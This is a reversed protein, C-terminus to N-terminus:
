PLTQDGPAKEEKFLSQHTGRSNTFNLGVQSKRCLSNLLISNQLTAIIESNQFTKLFMLKALCKCIAFVSIQLTYSLKSFQCFVQLFHRQWLRKRSLTGSEPRTGAKNNEYLNKIFKKFVFKALCRRKATEKIQLSSRFSHSTFTFCIQLLNSTSKFCIQTSHSTFKLCIKLLNSIFQFWCVLQLM